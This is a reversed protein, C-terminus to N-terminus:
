FVRNPTWCACHALRCGATVGAYFRIHEDGVVLPNDATRVDRTTDAIEVLDHQLIVHSCISRDLDTEPADLGVRAKFWQRTEDVLSILSIPVECIKSALDVVEDFQSEAETDLIGLERLHALRESQKPHLQARM